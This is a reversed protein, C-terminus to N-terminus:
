SRAARRRRELLLSLKLFVYFTNVGSVLLGATGLRLGGRLLYNRVFAGLSAAVIEAPGTRRGAEDAQEAWLAAYRRVTAVHDDLDTYPHHEIEGRLRGVTGHVRVSEHVLKGEWRGRRRDFLRLQPDPYWDTGRIWRGLHFAVRPIRYGAAAFGAARLAEIETRLGDGIREDADLSLVWDHRAAEVAFNKQAVFGPWPAHSVVRAGAAEALRVTADRSGGDVVVVEECFAASRIAGEVLREEDQAVIVASV